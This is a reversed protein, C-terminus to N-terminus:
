ASRAMLRGIPSLLQLLTIKTAPERRSRTERELAVRGIERRRDAEVSESLVLTGTPMM